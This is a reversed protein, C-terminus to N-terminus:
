AAWRWFSRRHCYADCCNHSSSFCQPRSLSNRKRSNRSFFTPFTLLNSQGPSDGSDSDGSSDNSGESSRVFTPRSARNYARANSRANARVHVNVRVAKSFSRAKLPRFLNVGKEKTVRFTKKIFKAYLPDDEKFVRPEQGKYKAVTNSIFRIVQLITQALFAVACLVVALFLSAIGAYKALTLGAVSYVCLFTGIGFFSVFACTVAMNSQKSFKGFASDLLRDFTMTLIKEVGERSPAKLNRVM